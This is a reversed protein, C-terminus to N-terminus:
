TSPPIFVQLLDSLVAFTSACGIDRLKCVDVELVRRHMKWIPQVVQMESCSMETEETVLQLPDCLGITKLKQM